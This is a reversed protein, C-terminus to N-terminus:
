QKYSKTNRTDIYISARGKEKKKKALARSQSMYGIKQNYVSEDDVNQVESNFISILDHM